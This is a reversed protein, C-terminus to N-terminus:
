DKLMQSAPRRIANRSDIMIFEAPCAIVVHHRRKIVFVVTWKQATQHPNPDGVERECDCVLRVETSSHNM